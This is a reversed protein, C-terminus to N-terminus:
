GAVDLVSSALGPVVHHGAQGRGGEGVARQRRDLVHHLDGGVQEGGALLGRGPEEAGGEHGEALSGLELLLEAVVAAEDGGEDLLDRRRSGGMLPVKRRDRVGVFTRSVSIGAPLVTMTRGARGVAVRALELMGVLKTEVTSFARWCMAKPWPMWVQAPAGSARASALTERWRRSSRIASMRMESDCWPGAPVTVPLVRGGPHEPTM